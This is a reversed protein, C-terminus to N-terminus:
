HAEHTAEKPATLAAIAKAVLQANYFQWCIACKDGQIAPQSCICRPIEVETMPQSM